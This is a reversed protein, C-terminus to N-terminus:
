RTAARHWGRWASRGVTPHSERRSPREGPCRRPPCPRRPPRSVSPGPRSGSRAADIPPSASATGDRRIELRWDDAPERVGLAAAIARSLEWYGLENLHIGNDTIPAPGSCDPSTSTSIVEARPRRGSRRGTSRCSRTIGTRSRPPSAVWTRPEHPIPSILVVRAGTRAFVDLLRNLGEMFRSLGAEGDFSDTMGYGAFIVTPKLSLIHSELQKFGDAPTGFGARAHGYVTDGSWGLNRFSIQRDPYRATLVTELYGHSADREILADGVFVVRDGDKLEFGAPRRPLAADASRM